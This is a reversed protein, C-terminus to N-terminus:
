RVSESDEYIRTHQLHTSEERLYTFKRQKQVVALVGVVGVVGDGGVDGGGWFGMVGLVGVGCAHLSMRSYISMQM